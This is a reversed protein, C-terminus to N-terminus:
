KGLQMCESKIVNKASRERRIVIESQVKKRQLGVMSEYHLNRTVVVM